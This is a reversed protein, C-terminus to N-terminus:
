GVRFSTVLERCAAGDAGTARRCILEYEHQRRLVFTLEETLGEHDIAYWRADLGNVELTRRRAVKGKQLQALRAAVGDLERVTAAQKVHLYAHVLRFENVQVRDIPGNSATAGVVKWGAPAQFRFGSGRVQVWNSNGAGGCGALILALVLL